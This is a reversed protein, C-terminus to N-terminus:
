KRGTAAKKVDPAGHKQATADIAGCDANKAMGPDIFPLIAAPPFLIGLLAAIGGQAIAPGAEIGVHPNRFDSM